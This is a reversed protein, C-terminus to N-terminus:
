SAANALVGDGITEIIIMSVYYEIKDDNTPKNKNDYYCKTAVAINLEFSDEGWYEIYEKLRQSVTKQFLDPEGECIINFAQTLKKSNLM